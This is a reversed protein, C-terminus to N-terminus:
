GSSCENALLIAVSAKAPRAWLDVADLIAHRAQHTRAASQTKLDASSWLELACASVDSNESLYHIREGVRAESARAHDWDVRHEIRRNLLEQLM